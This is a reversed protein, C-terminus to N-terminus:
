DWVFLLIYLVIWIGSVFHWYTTALRTATAGREVGSRLSRWLAYGLAVGGGLVHVAHVSSLMYFFSGHPSSPVFIGAAALQQWVLVQGAIFAAGLGIGALMWRKYRVARQMQALQLAVSSAIIVATNALLLPPSYIPTWDGSTRRILYASIFGAFLMTVTVIVVWLALSPAPLSSAADWSQHEPDPRSYVPLAEEDLRPATLPWNISPTQVRM